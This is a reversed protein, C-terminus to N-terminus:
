SGGSTVQGGGAAPSVGSSSSSGSSTTGSQGQSSSTQGGTLDSPLHPLSPSLHAFRAGVITAGAAAVLGARWTLKRVRRLGDDRARLANPQNSRKM